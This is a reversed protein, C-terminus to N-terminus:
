VKKKFILASLLFVTVASMVWAFSINSILFNEETIKGDKLLFMLIVSFANNTFHMIVAPFVSGSNVTILGLIVGLVGTEFVTFVNMHMLGFMLGTTLILSVKSFKREM